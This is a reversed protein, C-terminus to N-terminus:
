HPAKFTIPITFYSSVPKGNNKGPQWKPMLKVVRLAERDISPDVGRLIQADSITGESDVVFKVIVRGEAGREQADAPYRLNAALFKMLEAQGGPFAAQQEVATHIEEPERKSSSETEAPDAVKVVVQEQIARFRDPDDSDEQNVRRTTRTDQPPNALADTLTAYMRDFDAIRWSTEKTYTRLDPYEDKILVINHEEGYNYSTVTASIRYDNVSNITISKIAANPSTSNETYWGRIKQNRPYKAYCETVLQYLEPTLSYRTDDNIGRNPIGKWLNRIISEPSESATQQPQAQPLKFTIPLLYYSRVTVGANKGPHWNPMSSVLRIAENDLDTDVGKVIEPSEISGDTNVIFSVIVRGQIGNKLANEPYQQNQTLWDIMAKMGGPFEAQQEVVSFVQDSSNIAPSPAASVTLPIAALLASALSYYIRKM